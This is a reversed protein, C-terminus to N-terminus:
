PRFPNPMPHASHWIIFHKLGNGAATLLAAYIVALSLVQPNLSDTTAANAGGVVAGVPVGSLFGNAFQTLADSIWLLWRVSPRETLGDGDRDEPLKAALDSM